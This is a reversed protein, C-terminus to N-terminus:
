RKWYYVRSFIVEEKFFVGKGEVRKVKRYVERRLFNLFIELFLLTDPNHCPNFFLQGVRVIKESLSRYSQEPYFAKEGMDSLKRGPLGFFSFTKLFTPMDDRLPNGNVKKISLPDIVIGHIQYAIKKIKELPLMFEHKFCILTDDGYVMLHYYKPEIGLDEMIVTWNIWNVISGIVTTFPSGTAISKKVRYLLGGPIVINKYIFGSAYYDFLRDMESNDPYCSRLIAWAAKLVETGTHQDFRKLDCEIVYNYEGLKEHFYKFKGNMFDIGTLIENNSYKKNINIIGKYFESVCALGAIKSVADPVILFRSRLIENYEGKQARSRGGVTWITRDSIMERRAKRVTEYAPFRLLHDAYRQKTNKGFMCEPIFGVSSDGNVPVHFCDEPLVEGCKPLKLKYLSKSVKQL